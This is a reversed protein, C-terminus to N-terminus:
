DVPAGADRSGEAFCEACIMVAGELLDATRAGDPASALRVSCPDCVAVPLAEGKVEHWGPEAGANLPHVLRRAIHQCVICARSRREHKDCWLTM